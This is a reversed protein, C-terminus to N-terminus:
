HGDLLHDSKPVPPEQEGAELVLAAPALHDGGAWRDVLQWPRQRPQGFLTRPRQIQGGLVGQLLALQLQLDSQGASREGDGLRIHDIWSRAHDPLPQREPIRTRRGQLDDLGFEQINGRPEPGPQLVRSKWQIVPASFWGPHQVSFVSRNAPSCGRRKSEYSGNGPGAPRDVPPSPTSALIVSLSFCRDPGAFPPPVTSSMSSRAGEVQPGVHLRSVPQSEDDVLM